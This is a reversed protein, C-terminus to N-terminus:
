FTILPNRECQNEHGMCESSLHFSPFHPELFMLPCKRIVGSTLINDQRNWNIKLEMKIFKLQFIDVQTREPKRIKALALPQRVGMVWRLTTLLVTSQFEPLPKVKLSCQEPLGDSLYNDLQEEEQLEAKVYPLLAAVQSICWSLFFFVICVCVGGGNVGKWFTEPHIIKEEVGKLSCVLCSRWMQSTAHVAMEAFSQLM